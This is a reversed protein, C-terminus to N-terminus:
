LLFPMFLPNYLSIGISVTSEAGFSLAAFVGFTNGLGYSGMVQYVQSKIANGAGDGPLALNQLPFYVGLGLDAQKIKPLLYRYNAGIAGIPGILSLSVGSIHQNRSGWQEQFDVQFLPKPLVGLNIRVFGLAEERERRHYERAYNMPVRVSDLTEAANALKVYLITGDEISVIRMFVGSPTEKVMVVSKAAAYAAVQRIKQFESISLPGNNINIRANDQMHLRHTDCERCEILSGPSSFRRQLMADVADDFDERSEAWYHVASPVLMPSIKEAITPDEQLANALDDELRQLDETTQALLAMARNSLALTCFLILTWRMVM